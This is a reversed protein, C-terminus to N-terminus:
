DKVYKISAQQQAEDGDMFLQLINFQMSCGMQSEDMAEDSMACTYMHNNSATFVLEDVHPNYILKQIRM